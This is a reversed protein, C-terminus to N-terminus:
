LDAMPDLRPDRHFVDIAGVPRAKRAPQGGRGGVGAGFGGGSGPGAGSGGGGSKVTKLRVRQGSKSVIKAGDVLQPALAQKLSGNKLAAEWEQPVAPCHRCYSLFIVLFRPYAFFHFPRM